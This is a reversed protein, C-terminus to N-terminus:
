TLIGLRKAYNPWTFGTPLESSPGALGRLNAVLLLRLALWRWETPRRCAADVLISWVCLPWLLIIPWLVVVAGFWTPVSLFIAFKALHVFFPDGLYPFAYFM